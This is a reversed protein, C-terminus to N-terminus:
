AASNEELSLLSKLSRKYLPARHKLYFKSLLRMLRHRSYEKDTLNELYEYAEKRFDEFRTCAIAFRHLQSTYVGYIVSSPITSSPHQNRVVPFPFARRKDFLSTIITDDRDQLLLGAFEAESLEKNTRKLTLEKPYIGTPFPVALFDVIDPNSISLLDDILRFSMHFERAIALGRNQVLADIFHAEYWYLYLNAIKPGSNTGMPIGLIQRVLFDGNHIFTHTLVFTLLKKIDPVDMYHVDGSHSSVGHSRFVAKDGVIEIIKAREFDFAEQVVLTIKEILDAHPLRTYM